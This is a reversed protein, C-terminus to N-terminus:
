TAEATFDARALYNGSTQSGTTDAKFQITYSADTGGSTKTCILDGNAPATAAPRLGYTNGATWTPTTCNSTATVDVGFTGDAMGNGASSVGTFAADALSGGSCALTVAAQCFAASAAPRPDNVKLTAGGAGNTTGFKVDCTAGIVVDANDGATAALSANNQTTGFCTTSTTHIEPLVAATVTVSGTATAATSNPTLQVGAASLGGWALLLFAPLL